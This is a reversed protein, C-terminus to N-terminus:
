QFRDSLHQTQQLEPVNRIEPLVTDLEPEDQFFYEIQPLQYKYPPPCCDARNWKKTHPTDEIGM